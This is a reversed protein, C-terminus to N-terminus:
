KSKELAFSFSGVKCKGDSEIIIYITKDGTFTETKSDVSDNTGIEFLNLKEDNFDYYVKINGEGLKAEYSIFVEDTGNNKLKMVYTGSFSDFSVSAENSNNTTVMFTASYHSAYKIKCAALTFCLVMMTMVIIVSAIKKM